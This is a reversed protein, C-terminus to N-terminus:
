RDCSTSSNGSRDGFIDRAEIRRRVVGRDHAGGLKGLGVLEHEALLVAIARRDARGAHPKRAALALADPEGAGEVAIRLHDDEVLRVGVEVGFALLREFAGHQLGLLAAGGDHQNGVARRDGGFAVANEHKTFALDFHVAGRLVHQLFERLACWACWTGLGLRRCRRRGRRLRRLRFGGAANGKPM